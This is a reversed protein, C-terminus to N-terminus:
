PPVVGRDYRISLYDPRFSRISIYFRLNSPSFASVSPILRRSRDFCFCFVVIGLKCSKGVFCDFYLRSICSKWPIHFGHSSELYLSEGLPTNSSCIEHSNRSEVVDALFCYRGPQRLKGSILADDHLRKRCIVSSPGNTGSYPTKPSM